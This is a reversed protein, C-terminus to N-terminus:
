LIAHVMAAAAGAATRGTAADRFCALFVKAARVTLLPEMLFVVAMCPSPIRRCCGPLGAGM